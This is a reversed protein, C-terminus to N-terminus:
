VAEAEVGTLQSIETEMREADSHQDSLHLLYIKELTKLDNAKLMELVNKLGFHTRMLRTKYGSNVMKSARLLDECYSCEIALINVGPFRYRVYCTDTIFLLLKKKDTILFGVPERADHEVPFALINFGNIYVSEMPNIIVTRHHTTIELAEATGRTMYCDIGVRQLDKVAKSHDTHEHTILCSKIKHVPVRRRLRKIPLGAELLLLNDGSKVTYLNGKSGSAYPTFEM